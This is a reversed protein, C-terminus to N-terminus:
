RIIKKIRINGWNIFTTNEGEKLTKADAQDILIKPGLWVTKEGISPNKPHRPAKIAEEKVGPIIVPVVDEKEVATYRPAIPDIVQLM